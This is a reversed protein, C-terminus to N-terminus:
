SRHFPTDGHSKSTVEQSTPDNSSNAGRPSREPGSSRSSTHTRERRALAKRSVPHAQVGDGTTKATAKPWKAGYADAFAKAATPARTATKPTGFRPLRPRRAPIHPCSRHPLANAIAHFWCRQEKTGPFVERVAKWFGLAGDGAALVPATM